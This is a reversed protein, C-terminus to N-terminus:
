QWFREDEFVQESTMTFKLMRSYFTLGIAIAAIAVAFILIVGIFILDADIFLLIINILLVVLSIIPLYIITGKTIKRIKPLLELIKMRNVEDVMDTHSYLLEETGNYLGTYSKYSVFIYAGVGASVILMIIIGMTKIVALNAPSDIFSYASAFSIGIIVIAFIILLSIILSIANSIIGYVAFQNFGSNVHKVSWMKVMTFITWGLTVLAILGEILGTANSEEGFVTTGITSIAYTVITLIIGIKLVKYINMNSM